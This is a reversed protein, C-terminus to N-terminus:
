DLFTLDVKVDTIPVDLVIAALDEAMMQAEERTYGQTVHSGTASLNNVTVVWFPDDWIASATFNHM